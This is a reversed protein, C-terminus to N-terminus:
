QKVVQKVGVNGKDTRLQLWYVGKPLQQIDIQQTTAGNLKFEAVQRGNQDSVTLAAPVEAESAYRLSFVGTTPNPNVQFDVNIAASSTAIQHASEADFLQILESMKNLAIEGNFSVLVFDDSAGVLLILDTISKENSKIWFRVRDNGDQVSLIEDFSEVPVQSLAEKYYSIGNATNEAALIKLQGINQVVQHLKKWDKDEVTTKMMVEFLDKSLYAHTFGAKDQYKLFFQNLGESQSYLLQFALMFAALPFVSKKM